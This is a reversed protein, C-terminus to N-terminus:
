RSWGCCWEIGVRREESRYVTDGNLIFDVLERDDKSVNFHIDYGTYTIDFSEFRKSPRNFKYIFSDYRKERGHVFDKIVVKYGFDPDYTVQAREGRSYDCLIHPVTYPSIVTM